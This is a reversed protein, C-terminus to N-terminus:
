AAFALPLHRPFSFSFPPFFSVEPYLPALYSKINSRSGVRPEVVSDVRKWKSVADREREREGGGEGGRMRDIEAGNSGGSSPGIPALDTSVVTRFRTESKRAFTWAHSRCFQETDDDLTKRVEREIPRCALRVKNRRFTQDFM